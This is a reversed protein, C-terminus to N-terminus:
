KMLFSICINQEWGRGMNIPTILVKWATWPYLVGIISLSLTFFSEIQILLRNVILKSKIMRTSVKTTNVLKMWWLLFGSLSKMKPLSWKYTGSYYTTIKTKSTTNLRLWFEKADKNKRITLNAFQLFLIWCIKSM